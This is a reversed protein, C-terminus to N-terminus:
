HEIIGFIHHREECKGEALNTQTSIAPNIAKPGLWLDQQGTKSIKQWRDNSYQLKNDLIGQQVM